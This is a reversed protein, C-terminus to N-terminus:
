VRDTKQKVLGNNGLQEGELNPQDGLIQSNQSNYSYNIILKLITATSYFHSNGCYKKNGM